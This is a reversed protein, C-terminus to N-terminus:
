RSRWRSGSRGGTGTRTRTTNSRAHYHRDFDVRKYQYYHFMRRWLDPGKGGTGEKFPIYPLAGAAFAAAINKKSSYAKDASVDDVVFRIGTADLLPEFQTADGKPSVIMDPVVHTRTGCIAHAKVFKARKRAKGWKQDFWRDYTRTSFGTSDVAFDREVGALPSASEQLLMRLLPTLDPDSMYDSITNYSVARSLLGEDRSRVVESTARRGSTGEYVKLTCAFVADALPTRPRGRGTQPVMTIGDCLAHLLQTFHARENTQAANYAPWDQTYTKREPEPTDSSMLLRGLHLEIAFIHKCFASNAEFDPCTCAPEGSSYDVLWKGKHSQSPVLWLHDSRQQLGGTKAIQEGRLQRPEM